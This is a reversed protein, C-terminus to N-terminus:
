YNSYKESFNKDIDLCFCTSKNCIQCKSSKMENFENNNIILKDFLNNENLLNSSFNNLKSETSTGTTEPKSCKVKKNTKIKKQNMTKFNERSKLYKMIQDNISNDQYNKTVRHILNSSTISYSLFKELDEFDNIGELDKFNRTSQIQQTISPKNIQNLTDHTMYGNKIFDLQKMQNNIVEIYNNILEQEKLKSLYDVKMKTFEPDDPTTPSAIPSSTILFPSETSSSSSIAMSSPIKEKEKMNMEKVGRHIDKMNQRKTAEDDDINVPKRGPRPRPPLVWKKSLGIENKLKISTTPKINPNFKSETKQCPKPLVAIPKSKRLPQFSSTNPKIPQPQIKPYKPKIPTQTTDEPKSM